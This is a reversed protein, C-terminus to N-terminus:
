CTPIDLMDNLTIPQLDVESDTIIGPEIFDPEVDENLEPESLLEEIEANDSIEQTINSQKVPTANNVDVTNDYRLLELVADFTNETISNTVANPSVAKMIKTIIEAIQSLISKGSQRYEVSDMEKRFTTDVMVGAIFEALNITRYTNHRFESSNGIPEVANTYFENNTDRNWVAQQQNIRTIAEQLNTDKAYKDLIHKSGQKFLSVLKIVHAPVDDTLFDINIEGNENIYSKSTDVYKDVQQVTISHIIEELVTYYIMEDRKKLLDNSLYISNTNLEGFSTQVTDSNNYNGVYIGNADIDKFYIPITNDVFPLVFEAIKAFNKSNQAINSVITSIDQNLKLDNKVDESSREISNEVPKVTTTNVTVNNSEILSKQNYEFPSYENLGFAGLTTTKKYVDNSDKEFLMFTGNKSDRISYFQPNAVTDKLTFWELKELTKDNSEKLWSKNNKFNLKKAQEPNHQFFQKTFISNFDERSTNNLNINNKNLNYTITSTGYKTNIREIFDEITNVSNFEFSIKKNKNIKEVAIYTVGKLLYLKNKVPLKPFENIKEADTRKPINNKIDITNDNNIKHNGIIFMLAKFDGNLLLNHSLNQGVGSHKRLNETVNYKNLITMPIHQRFGIAGNEQNSLLAYKTLDKILTEHTYKQGNFKPLETQSNNLINLQNYVSNKNYATRDNSSYKILSVDDGKSLVFELEKFFPQNFLDNKNKKLKNLYSALSENKNKKLENTDSDTFLRKRETNIDNDFIGLNSYSYIYDKMDSIIKYKLETTSKTGNEKGAITLIENIQNDIFENEFPLVNSWLNYGASISNVLKNSLPSNPRIFVASSEDQNVKIYGQELLDSERNDVQKAPIEVRDGFLKTIGQINIDEDKMSILTNKKDVTNFYSIGLGGDINALQQVKTINAANINLNTFKEFVAWQQANNGQILSDYLSQGTLLSGEVRKMQEDSMNGTEEDIEVGDGFEKLLISKIEADTNENYETMISDFQEKLEVYRRIIPQSIFLSPLSMEAGNVMDKDFGLNSMLAFANITYKNENRRGMIQLKQNDTSSNQSEMNIVSLLRPIFGPISKDPQLANIQGLKGQSTFNGIRMIWPYPTGTEENYGSVLQPAVQMQQFLSNLVVWNSHVGIGLKGSAGLRLISKQHEDDFISFNIDDKASNLKSDIADATDEAFQTSLTAGIMKQINNDTSSFIAKYIDVIGNEVVLHNLSDKLIQHKRERSINGQEFINQIEENNKFEDFINLIDEAQKDWESENTYSSDLNEIRRQVYEADIKRIKGKSDVRYNQTYVYRTDIDYDEGLQTTHDKPVIMLDGSAHPLFGVIEILAGSQHASTPIRFSFMQLLEPSVKDMDLVTRGDELTKTYTTLDILEDTYKNTTENRKKVRFKSAVMIQASKLSGDSNHTATLGLEANFNETYVIGKVDKIDSEEKIRFGEQSAVPSSFGPLKLNILKNNVISNLVSEFKRSNPSMWIPINFEASTAKLGQEQLQSKTYYKNVYKGNVMTPVIYSLELIEKDQKNSLRKDLASKIHELTEVSNNWDGNNNLGLSNYLQNKLISQESRYLETYRKYLDVGSIMEGNFPFIKQTIKNIGNGLIIKEFQTGRNIEDRKNAKINKDTKFPKDQQISFNERDLILSSGIMKDELTNDYKDNYLESINIASKNAGVKNGSQYSVRVKKGTKNELTEINKRLSDLELGSTMEPLLPFSSTKVYVFRQNKGIVENDNNYVDEFYMGAHLPKIPQFVIKKEEKSLKNTENIGEKSQAELKKFLSDYVSQNVRGQNLLIHLHEQWTTYEQADTATVNFYASIDPLNDQLRGSVASYEDEILKVSENNAIGIRIERELDKLRKLDEKNAQYLDPYFQKVIYDITNSSDEVDNVMLQIYQEGKSNAIRNGPSILEKLRKSMNVSTAKIINNYVTQEVEFQNQNVDVSVKPSTVDTVGNADKNFKKEDKDKVYNNIDGAFLMQIQAQNIYYNITYDFAAIQLNELVNISGRDNIYKSDLFEPTLKDNLFGNDVWTGKISDGDKRIKKDVNDKITENIKGHIQEKYDNYIDDISDGAKIRQHVLTLLKVDNGNENIVLTNMSPLMTFLQSGLNHGQINVQKNSTLFQHIRDLDPKVLQSYMVELVDEGISINGSDSVNFNGKNLNLGVTNMIFMQSSDSLTPFAMKMERLSIGKSKMEQSTFYAGESQFFGQLLLDYDQSSLDTIGGGKRKSKNEKISELSIYGMSVANSIKTNTGLFNLLMSNRSFASQRLNEALPNDFDKLKRLQESTYNPQSYANITKGAIYMSSALNFTNNVEVDILTKLYGGNNETLINFADGDNKFEARYKFIVGDGQVQRNLATKLNGSLINFLGGTFNGEFNVNGEVLGDKYDQITKNTVQIGFNNLWKTYVENSINDYNGKWSEFQNILDTAKDEKLRYTDGFNILLDSQKLNEQWDQKIKINPNRSNADYVQLKYNGNKMKSYMVFFMENKTQNLRFLIEKQVEVEASNFKDLVQQLFGFEAPNKQIQNEIKDKFSKADNSINVLMDQLGGIVEDSTYYEDLGLVGETTTKNEKKIGSFFMKMKTSLSTRVDNEFAAKNNNKEFIGQDSLNVENENDIGTDTDNEIEFQQSLFSELESKVTNDNTSFNNLGLISDKNESLYRFEPTGQINNLYKEFSNVIRDVIDKDTFDKSIDVSSLINNFLYQIVRRRQSETLNEVNRNNLINDIINLFDTQTYVQGKYTINCDM